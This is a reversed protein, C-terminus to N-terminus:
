ADSAGYIFDSDCFEGDASKEDSRCTLKVLTAGGGTIISWLPAWGRADKTCLALEQVVVSLGGQTSQTLFTFAGRDDTKAEIFTGSCEQYSPYLRLEVNSVPGSPGVLTGTVRQPIQKDCGSLSVAFCAASLAM